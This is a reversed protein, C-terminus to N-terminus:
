DATGQQERRPRGLVEVLPGISRVHLDRQPFAIEIKAERFAQDIQENLSDVLRPWEERSRMFVRLEFMLASDGFSRFIASPAPEDLVIPNQKAARLLLERARKTDSGYAIGVPLVMRTIPDSLTWNIVSGTIFDKNPIVMERRDWDTVTTARIRIRTVKGDVGGVTVFDGVRIPREFLIILGSVFNAFIEQLGFGLGVSVAAVLWQVKSWGIGVSNFCVLVGILALAYRVVTVIANREGAPVGLRRLLTADLVGPVNRTALVTIALIVAALLMDALSVQFAQAGSRDEWLVVGRLFGLAPLVDVWVFWAVLAVGVALAGGVLRRMQADVTAVNLEPEQADPIEAGDGAVKAALRRQRAQELVLRRRALLMMRVILGHLLVVAFVLALTAELRRVLQLATFHYGLIALVVLALPVGVGLLLLLRRRRTGLRALTGTRAALIRAFFVTLALLGGILALRGWGARWPGDGLEDFFAVLFAAPLVVPVLWRLERRVNAVGVANWRLHAEGLGGPRLIRFFLEPLLWILSVHWLAGALAHVFLDHEPDNALRWALLALLLPGTVALLACVTLTKLTPAITTTSGRGAEAGWAAMRPRLMRGLAFLAALAFALFGLLIPNAALDRRAAAAVASWHRAATLCESGKRFAEPDFRWLPTASRVWLVREDLYTTYEAVRQLLQREQTDLSVLVNFYSKLLEVVADLHARKRELLRNAEEVVRARDADQVPPDFGDVVRAVYDSELLSTREAERDLRDIQAGAIEGRRREVSRASVGPDERLKRRRERLQLGIAETLGATDVRSRTDEFEENLVRLREIVTDRMENAAGLKGTLESRLAALRANDAAISVLGEHVARAATISAEAEQEAAQAVFRRRALLADRLDKVAQTAIAIRRALLERQAAQVEETARYFAEETRLADVEIAALLRLAQARADRAREAPGADAPLAPPPQRQQELHRQEADAILKPLEGRRTARRAIEQDLQTSQERRQALAAEDAALSKDLEEFSTAALDIPPPADLARLAARAAELEDPVAATGAKQQRSQAQLAQAKRVAERAQEYVEVIPARGADDLSADSRVAATEIDIRAVLAALGADQSSPEQAQAVFALSLAFVAGAIGLTM